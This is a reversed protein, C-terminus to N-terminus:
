ENLYVLCSKILDELGESDGICGNVAEQSQRGTYGLVMLATKAEDAMSNDVNRGASPIVVGSKEMEKFKDKLELIIRQATKKGIGKAKSLEGVDGGAISFAITRPTLTSLLALGAKPGVGSINILMRFISLEEKDCFGYLQLIDERVHMYTYITTEDEGPKLHGLATDSTYIRYGVGNNELVIFDSGVAAISGKLFEFM